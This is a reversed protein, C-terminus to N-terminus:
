IQVRERCSARGIQAIADDYCRFVVDVRYHQPTEMAYRVERFRNTAHDSKGFLVPVRENVSRRQEQQVRAGVMLDGADATALGLACGTLLPRDRFSASWLPSETSGTAPMQISVQIRGYPSTLTNHDEGAATPSASAAVLLAILASLCAGKKSYTNRFNSLRPDM